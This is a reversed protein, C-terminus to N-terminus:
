GEFYRRTIGVQYMRRFIRIHEWDKYIKNTEILSIFRKVCFMKTQTVKLEDTIFLFVNGSSNTIRHEILIKRNVNYDDFKENFFWWM